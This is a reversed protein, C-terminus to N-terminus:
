MRGLPIEIIINLGNENKASVKGGHNQIIEQVIALGLGNGITTITRAEDERFFRDFIKDISKENVGPGNDNISLVMSNENKTACITILPDHSYKISNEIINNLVRGIENQDMMVYIEEDFEEINIQCEKYQNHDNVWEHIYNKLNVLEFNFKVEKKELKTLVFLSDVLKELDNTRVQIAHYYRAKKEPTNAVNEILGECYGRISTLPTRLDHSIGRIINKRYEDFAVRDKVTKKLYKRMEDFSDFVEKFEDQFRYEIEFDLNGNSVEDFGKKLKYIPVLLMRGNSYNIFSILSVSIIITLIICLYIFSTIYKSFISIETAQFQDSKIAYIEIHNEMITQKTFVAVGNYVHIDDLDATADIIHQIKSINDINTYIIDKDSLLLIGYGLSILEQELESLLVTLNVDNVGENISNIFYDWQYEEIEEGYAYLLSQASYIGDNDTFMQEFASWYRSGFSTFLTYALGVSLVIPAIILMINSIILKNKIKM